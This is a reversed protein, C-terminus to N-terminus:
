DEKTSKPFVRAYKDDDTSEDVGGTFGRAELPITDKPLSALVGLAGPDTELQTLWHSERAPPIRGDDVAAKVASRRAAAVQENRAARGDAAASRLEALAAEDILVTGAPASASTTPEANEALAEDVAALLGDDDLQTGAPIGLRQRLGETIDTAMPAVGKQLPVVAAPPAPPKPVAALAAPGIRELPSGQAFSLRGRRHTAARGPMAPAPAAARGRYTFRSRLDADFDGEGEGPDIPEIPEVLTTDADDGEGDGDISDALGADVAEAPSYWTEARMAARWDTVDGGAKKAYAEAISNSLRDLDAAEKVLSEANGLVISWADHIMLEAGQGMVLEDGAMAVLSAASAAMGDVQIRVHPTARRVVNFIAIGDYASGGPSNLYLNIRDVDDLSVFDRVFQAPDIGWWGGIAGYLYVDAVQTDGTDQAAAARREIRARPRPADPSDNLTASAM